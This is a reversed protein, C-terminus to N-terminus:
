YRVSNELILEVAVSLNDVFGDPTIQPHNEWDKTFKGTRVQVGRIGCNQAGGVDSIIDDGIMICEHPQLQMDNVASQFFIPSPKGIIEPQIETAFELAKAFPAVDLILEGNHRYYRGFGLTFFSMDEKPKSTLIRFAKNMNEFSFYEGADGLVVCNPDEINLGEYDMLASPHVLLFPRLKREILLSKVVPGPSFILDPTVDTFGLKNLKDSLCKKTIQTENTCLRYQVGPIQSLKQLAEVSGPIPVGGTDNSEYLVGTIDLLIGKIPQSFWTQYNASTM